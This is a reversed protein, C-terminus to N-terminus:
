LNILFRLGLSNYSKNSKETDIKYGSEVNGYVSLVDVNLGEHRTFILELSISNTNKLYFGFGHGLSISVFNAKQVVLYEKSNNGNYLTIPLDGKAYAYGLEGVIYSSVNKRYADYQHKIFIKPNIFTELESSFLSYELSAGVYNKWSLYRGFAGYFSASYDGLNSGTHVGISGGFRDQKRARIITTDGGNIFVVRERFYRYEKRTISYTRGELDKFTIDGDTEQFIVIEGTLVRGGNLYVQDYVKAEEKGEDQSFSCLTTITLFLFLLIKQTM